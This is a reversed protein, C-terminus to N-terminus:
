TLHLQAIVKYNILLPLLRPWLVATDTATLRPTVLKTGSNVYQKALIRILYVALMNKM